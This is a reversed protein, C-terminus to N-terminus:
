RVTAVARALALVKDKAVKYFTMRAVGDPRQVAVLMAQDGLDVLATKAGADTLLQRKRTDSEVASVDHEFQQDATSMDEKIAALTSFSLQISTDDGSWVCETFGPRFERFAPGQYAEGIVAAAAQQTLVSDCRLAAPTAPEQLRSAGGGAASLAVAQISATLLALAVPRSAM